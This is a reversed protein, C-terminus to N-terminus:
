GMREPCYALIGQAMVIRVTGFGYEPYRQQMARQANYLGVGGLPADCATEALDVAADEDISIGNAKLQQVFQDDQNDATAPAALLVAVLPATLSVLLNRM